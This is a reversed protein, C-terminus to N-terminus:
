LWTQPDHTLWAMQLVQMIKTLVADYLSNVVLLSPSLNFEVFRTLNSQVLPLPIKIIKFSWQERTPRCRPGSRHDHTRPLTHLVIITFINTRNTRRLKNEMIPHLTKAIELDALALESGM